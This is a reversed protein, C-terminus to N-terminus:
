NEVVIETQAETARCFNLCGGKQSGPATTAVVVSVQAAADAEQALKEEDETVVASEEPVEVKEQDNAQAAQEDVLQEQTNSEETAGRAAEKTVEVEEAKTKVEDDDKSANADAPAESECMKSEDVPAAVVVEKSATETASGEAVAADPQTLLGLRSAVPAIEKSDAIPETLLTSGAVKDNPKSAQTTKSGVCGM